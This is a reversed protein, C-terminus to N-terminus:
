IVIASSIDTIKAMVMDGIGVGEFMEVIYMGDIEPAQGATRAEYCEDYEASVDEIFLKVTKGIKSEAKRLSIEESIDYLLEHRQLALEKDVRGPMTEAPTGHEPSYVFAGLFDFKTEEVFDLLQKFDDDSEGPFGVMLTTRLSIDKDLKRLHNILRVVRESNYGRRMDNLVNDSIHQIPMDLYRCVKPIAFLRDLMAEDTHAPHMYMIRLWEIGEIVALRECLGPLDIDEDLDRGYISTDQAVLILEKVGNAALYEAEKRITEPSRSGYGGRIDPIACYSCRNNCGDSIVLYAYPLDNVVRNINKPDLCYSNDGSVYKLLEEVENFKFSADVELKYKDYEPIAPYCGLAVLKAHENKYELLIDIEGETERRADDIFACTNIFVFDADSVDLTEDFGLDNLAGRVFDGDTQNKPCGLNLFYYNKSM